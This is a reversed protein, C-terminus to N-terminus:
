NSIKEQNESLATIKNTLDKLKKDYDNKTVIDESAFEKVLNITRRQQETGNSGLYQCQQEFLENMRDNMLDYKKVTNEDKNLLNLMNSPNFCDRLIQISEANERSFIKDVENTSENCKEEMLDIRDNIKDFYYQIKPKSLILQEIKKKDIKKYVENFIDNIMLRLEEIITFDVNIEFLINEDEDDKTYHNAQDRIAKMIKYFDSKYNSGKYYKNGYAVYKRNIFNQFNTYKKCNEFLYKSNKIADMLNYISSCYTKYIINKDSFNTISLEKDDFERYIKSLTNSMEVFEQIRLVCKIQKNSYKM